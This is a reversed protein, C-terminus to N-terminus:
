GEVRWQRAPAKVRAFPQCIPSINDHADLVGSDATLCCVKTKILLGIRTCIDGFIDIQVLRIREWKFIMRNHAHQGFRLTAKAVTM